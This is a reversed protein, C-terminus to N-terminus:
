KMEEAIIKMLKVPAANGVQQYKRKRSGSFTYSDDFTQLRACERVTLRRPQDYHVPPSANGGIVTYAPDDKHARAYAPHKAQGHPTERLKEVTEDRHNISNHSSIESEEGAELAPLDDIADGISQVSDSPEPLSITEEKSGVVILRKRKQPVSYNKSNHVKHLIDYQPPFAELLDSFFKGDDITTLSDVNEMMFKEPEFYSIFEAFVFVLNARETEVTRNSQAKSFDKCPPGGTIVDVDSPQIDHKESFTEPSVQSLDEQVANVNNHNEQLTKICDINFDVAAFVNYGAQKFGEVAGGAGAFLCLTNESM